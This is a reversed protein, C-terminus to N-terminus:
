HHPLVCTPSGIQLLHPPALLSGDASLRFTAISHSRELAVVLHGADICHHRPWSGGCDLEQQPVPTGDAGIRLTCIRNSGRVGVYLCREDPSLCIEAAADDPQAGIASVPFMGILELGAQAAPAPILVAIEASYETIVYVIGRSSRAFHRPGSGRPLVATGREELGRADTFSWSRLTDHGLDSTLFRGDGLILCSHARSQRADGYPDESPAGAHRDGLSGDPSIEFLVVSGDGWCSVVVFRGDPDVAVHCAYVGTAGSSGFARLTGDAQYRYSALEGTSESIAYLIPKSPHLALFSPSAAATAALAEYSGDRDRRLAVIGEGKGDMDSTYCGVWMAIGPGPRSTMSDESIM